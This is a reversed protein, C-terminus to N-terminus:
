VAVFNPETCKEPAQKIMIKKAEFKRKAFQDEWLGFKAFSERTEKMNELDIGSNQVLFDL